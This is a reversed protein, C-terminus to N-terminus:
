LVWIKFVQHIQAEIGEKVLIMTEPDLPIQGSLFVLNGVMTAHSYPGVAQPASPSNIAQHNM